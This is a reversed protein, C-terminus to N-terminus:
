AGAEEFLSSLIGMVTHADKGSGAWTCVQDINAFLKSLMAISREARQGRKRTKEPSGPLPARFVDNRLLRVPLPIESRRGREPSGPM